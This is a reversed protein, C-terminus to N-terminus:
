LERMIVIPKVLSIAAKTDVLPETHSTYEDDQQIDQLELSNVSPVERLLYSHFRELCSHKSKDKKVHLCQMCMYGALSM